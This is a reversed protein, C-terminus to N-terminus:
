FKGQTAKLLWILEHVAFVPAPLLRPQERWAKKFESQPFKHDSQLPEQFLMMGALCVIPIKFGGQRPYLLFSVSLILHHVSKQGEM